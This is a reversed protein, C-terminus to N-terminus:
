KMQHLASEDLYYRGNVEVFVRTKGRRRRMIRVFMRSLGLEEATLATEPSLAGKAQFTKVIERLREGTWGGLDELGTPESPAPAAKPAPAVPVPAAPPATPTPMVPPPPPPAPSPAVSVVTAPPSFPSRDLRVTHEISRQVPVTAAPSPAYGRAGAQVSYDGPKVTGFAIRGDAGTSGSLHAPGDASVGAGAVPSLNGSDVVRVTLNRRGRSRLVVLLVLVAIVVLVILLWEVSSLGTSSSSPTSGLSSATPIVSVSLWYAENPGPGPVPSGESQAVILYFPGTGVSGVSSSLVEGSQSINFLSTGSSDVSIELTYVIGVSPKAVLFPSKVWHGGGTGTRAYIGYFCQGAPISANAPIGCTTPDGCNTENSCDNPNLNGTIQVGSSADASTVGFVFPHGDSVAGEVIATVTFPPTFSETSQITGVEASGNIQAIEMGASSFSPDLTINTCSPCNLSGFAMGVPGNITWLNTNLESDRTFNDAFIPAASPSYSARAPAPVVVSFTWSALLLFIFMVLAQRVLSRESPKRCAGAFEHM